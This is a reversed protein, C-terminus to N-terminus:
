KQYRTDASLFRWIPALRPDRVGTVADFSNGNAM